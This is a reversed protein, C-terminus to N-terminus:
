AKAAKPRKVGYKSRSRRRKEVGTADLTGRVIHYRVGPLDKVRGARSCSRAGASIGWRFIPLLEHWEHPSGPSRRIASKFKQAHADHGPCVGCRFPNCQLALARVERRGQPTRRALQNITPMHNFPLQFLPFPASGVPSSGGCASKASYTSVKIEPFVGFSRGDTPATCNPQLPQLQSHVTPFALGKGRDLTLDFFARTCQECRCAEFVM